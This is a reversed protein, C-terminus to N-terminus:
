RSGLAALLEDPLTTIDGAGLTICLDGARLERSLYALLDARHPLWVVATRPHADLVANVLLRGSVGPRPQEGAAYVETLVVLDADVFSDAFERWLAETRSFRHPQFVAVM